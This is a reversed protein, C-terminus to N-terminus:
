QGEEHHRKQVGKVVDVLSVGGKGWVKYIERMEDNWGGPMIGDRSAEGMMRSVMMGHGEAFMKDEPIVEYCCPCHHERPIRDMKQLERMDVVQWHIKKIEQLAEIERKDKGGGIAVGREDQTYKRGGFSYAIIGAITHKVMEVREEMEEHHLAERLQENHLTIREPVDLWLNTGCYVCAAKSVPSDKWCVACVIRRIEGQKEIITAGIGNVRMENM